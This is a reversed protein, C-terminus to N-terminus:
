AAETSAADIEASPTARVRVDLDRNPDMGNVRVILDPGAAKAAITNHYHSVTLATTLEQDDYFKTRYNM